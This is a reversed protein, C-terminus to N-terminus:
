GGERECTERESENESERNNKQPLSPTYEQLHPSNNTSEIRTLIRVISSLVPPSLSIDTSIIITTRVAAASVVVAHGVVGVVLLYGAQVCV